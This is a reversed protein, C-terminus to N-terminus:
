HIPFGRGEPLPATLQEKKTAIFAHAIGCSNMGSVPRQKDQARQALELTYEIVETILAKTNSDM